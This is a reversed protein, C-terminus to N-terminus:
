PCLAVPNGSFPFLETGASAGAGPRVPIVLLGGGSLPPRKENAAAWGTFM